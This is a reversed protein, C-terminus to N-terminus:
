YYYIGHIKKRNFSYRQLIKLLVRNINESTHRGPMPTMGIVFSEKEMTKYTVLAACAMFDTNFSNTWLDVVLCVSVSDQLKKDIANYLKNLVEPLLKNRFSYYSPINLSQDLINRLYPIKLQTFSGNSVVFWKIFQLMKEDIIATTDKNMFKNYREFWDTLTDMHQLKLHQNLNSLKNFPANCKAKCIKCVFILNKDKPMSVFHSPSDFFYVICTKKYTEEGLYLIM